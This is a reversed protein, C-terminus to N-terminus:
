GGQQHPASWREVPERETEWANLYGGMPQQVAEVLQVLAQYRATLSQRGGVILRLQFAIEPHRQALDALVYKAKPEWWLNARYYGEVAKQVALGMLYSAADPDEALVDDIDQLLDLMEYRWRDQQDSTWPLPSGSWLRQAAEQLDSLCQDHDMVIQGRALMGVTAPDAEALERWLQDPPNIFLEIISEGVKYLRRQRWLDHHIVFFDWDSNPWSEGYARSGTWLVGILDAGFEDRMTRVVHSVTPAEVNPLARM